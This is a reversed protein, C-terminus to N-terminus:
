KIRLLKQILKLENVSPCDGIFATFVSFSPHGYCRIEIKDEFRFLVHDGKTFVHSDQIWGENVIQEDTLYPVRIKKLRINGESETVVKDGLLYEIKFNERANNPTIYYPIWKDDKRLECYFPFYTIDEPKPKYYKSM